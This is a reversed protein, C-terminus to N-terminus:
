QSAPAVASSHGVARFELGLEVHGSVHHGGELKWPDRCGIGCLRAADHLRTKQTPIKTLLRDHAHLIYNGKQMQELDHATVNRIGGPMGTQLRSSPSVQEKAM